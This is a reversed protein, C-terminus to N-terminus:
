TLYTFSQIKAEHLTVQAQIKKVKQGSVMSERYAVQVLISGIHDLLLCPKLTEPWPIGEPLCVYGYSSFIVFYHIKGNFITIKVMTKQLRKGSPLSMPRWKAVSPVPSQAKTGAWEKRINAQNKTISHWNKNTVDVYIM